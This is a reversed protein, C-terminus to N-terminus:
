TTAETRAAARPMREFRSAQEPPEEGAFIARTLAAYREVYDLHEIGHEAAARAAEALDDASPRPADLFRDIAAVFADVDGEPVLAAVAGELYDDIGGVDTAVVPVGASRAEIAVTCGSVHVNSLLPIAVVDAEAYRTEVIERQHFSRVTANAPWSLARVADALSLIEFDLQPRRAAAEVLLPWDRHRDNGIVLVRPRASAEAGAGAAASARDMRATAFHTGFPLLATRRGPVATRSRELNLRSHVVEIWAEPLLRSWLARRAAPLDPWDDWLWISQALLAARYTNPRLRKLLAVALHERETHTWVVDAGAIIARNRWVHVLDFGLAKRVASRWRRALGSEAHDTSWVLDFEDGALHYGYPTEDVVEGREHRERWRDPNLGHRLVVAVRPAQPVSM